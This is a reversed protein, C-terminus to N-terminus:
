CIGEEGFGVEDVVEAGAADLDDGAVQAEGVVDAFGIGPEVGDDGANASLHYGRLKIEDFDCVCVRIDATEEWRLVASINRM